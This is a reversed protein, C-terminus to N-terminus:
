EGDGPDNETVRAEFSTKVGEPGRLSLEGKWSDRLRSLSVLEASRLLPLLRILEADELERTGKDSWVEAAPFVVPSSAGPFSTLGRVM